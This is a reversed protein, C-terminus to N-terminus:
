QPCKGVGWVMKLRQILNSIAKNLSCDCFTCITTELKLTQTSIYLNYTILVVMSSLSTDTYTSYMPVHTDKPYMWSSSLAYVYVVWTGRMYLHKTLLVSWILGVYTLYLGCLFSCCCFSKSSPVRFVQCLTHGVSSDVGRPGVHCSIYRIIIPPLRWPQSKHSLWM